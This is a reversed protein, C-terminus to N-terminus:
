RTNDRSIIEVNDSAKPHEFEFKTRSDDIRNRAQYATMVEVDVHQDPDDPNKIRVVDFTRKEEVTDPENYEGQSHAKLDFISNGASGWVITPNNVVKPPVLLALTAAPRIDPSQSPRVIQELNSM